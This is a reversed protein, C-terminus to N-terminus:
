MPPASHHCCPPPQDLGPTASSPLRERPGAIGTEPSGIAVEPVAPLRGCAALVRWTGPGLLSTLTRRRRRPVAAIM